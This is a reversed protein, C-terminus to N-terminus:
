RFLFIYFQWRTEQEKVAGWKSSDQAFVSLKSITGAGPVKARGSGLRRGAGRWCARWGEMGERRVTSELVPIRLSLRADFWRPPM